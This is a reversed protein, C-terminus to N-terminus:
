YERSRPGNLWMQSRSAQHEPTAVPCAGTQAHIPSSPNRLHAPPSYPDARPARVSSSAGAGIDPTGPARDAQLPTNHTEASQQEMEEESDSMQFQLSEKSVSRSFAMNFLSVIGTKRPKIYGPKTRSHAPFWPAVLNGVCNFNTQLNNDNTSQM